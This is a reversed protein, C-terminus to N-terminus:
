AKLLLLVPRKLPSPLLTLLKLLKLVLLKLLWLLMTPLSTAALDSAVAAEAALARVREDVIAGSLVGSVAADASAFESRIAARDVTAASHAADSDSENGDIDDQMSKLLVNLVASSGGDDKSAVLVAALDVHSIQLAGASRFLM